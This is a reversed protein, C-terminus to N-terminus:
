HRIWPPVRPSGELESACSVFNLPQPKQCQSDTDIIAVSESHSNGGIFAVFLNNGSIHGGCALRVSLSSPKSTRTCKYHQPM